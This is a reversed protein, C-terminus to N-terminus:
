LDRQPEEAMVDDIHARTEPMGTNGGGHSM